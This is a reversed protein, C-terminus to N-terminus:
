RRNWENVSHIERVNGRRRHMCIVRLADAAHSAAGHEPIDKAYRDSWCYSSLHGWGVETKVKDFLATRLFIRVAEIGDAVYGRDTLPRTSSITFVVGLDRAIQERSIAEGFTRQRLDHPAVDEARAYRRERCYATFEALIDGEYRGTWQRFDIVRPRDLGYQVFWCATGPERITSGIDWGTYVGLAPDHPCDLRRGEAQLATLEEEYVAGVAPTTFDMYYQQMALVRPMGQLIQKEVDAKSFIGCDECTLVSVHWEPDSRVERIMAPFHNDGYSISVFLAWGRNNDIVPRFRAWVIPDANGFESFVIGVPPAGQRAEYNDSGLIQWTSGNRLRIMMLSSDTGAPGPIRLYYPFAEDILRRGTFEDIAEWIAIRGQIASPFMHWYTGIRKQLAHAAWHMSVKDKGARRTWAAIAYRGGAELFDWTPVQYWRLVFPEALAVDALM